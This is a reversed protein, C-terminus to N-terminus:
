EDDQGQGDFWKEGYVHVVRNGHQQLVLGPKGERTLYHGIVTGEFGDHAVSLRTGRPLRRKVAAFRREARRREIEPAHDLPWPPLRM